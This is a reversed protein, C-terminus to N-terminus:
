RGRLGVMIAPTRLLILLDLILNRHKIYYLDYELKLNTEEVNSAYDQNVQAWGTIGPKVLLRARYFPVHEQFLSILEPREPRPGVLSMEGRLVNIFQPLEDLHTKRLVKGVRTVRDDNESTWQPVGDKEADQWMTRFKLVRYTQDGRGSRTQTYFVPLGSEILNALTVLPLIILMGLVGIGGGLIDMLRKLLTYASSVRSEEVFSRLIWDAELHFIPVRGMLDEYVTQMSSIEIGREQIDLLAQFMRGRMEGSIAVIVDSVQEQTVIQALSEAGGRVRFGQIETGIKGPDDDILGLVIFPAPSLLNFVELLAEGAKGGGVVLVRRMFAPATFVRIYFLRWLLSLLSVLILFYGIGRRPLSGPESTLIYIISYLGLAILAATAIIRVVDQVKVARHIDYLEVILFLWIFPLFYYWLQVRNTLFESSFGLWEGRSSGWLYLSGLLAIAAIVFDGIVLLPLRERPRLRLGRSKALPKSASVSSM